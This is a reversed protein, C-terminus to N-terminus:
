NAEAAKPRAFCYLATDTRILIRGAEFAPTAYIKEHFNHSSIVHWEKQNALVTIVGQESAFYIKGDAAVPSAYYGGGGPLREEFLPQGTAADLQTVIGGEKVM